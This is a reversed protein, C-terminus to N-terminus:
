SSATYKGKYANVLTDDATISLILFAVFSLALGLLILSAIYSYASCTTVGFVLKVITAWFNSQAQNGCLLAGNLNIAYVSSVATLLVSLEFIERELVFVLRRRWSLKSLYEALRQSRRALEDKNWIRLQGHLAFNHAAAMLNTTGIVIALSPIDFQSPFFTDYTAVLTSIGLWHMLFGGNQGFRAIFWLLLSNTEHVELQEKKLNRALIRTSALDPAQLISYLGFSM